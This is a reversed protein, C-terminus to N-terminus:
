TIALPLIEKSKFALYYEMIHVSWMKNIWEDMSPCRHQKGIKGITFSPALFMPMYIDRQSGPKLEKPFFVWIQRVELNWLRRFMIGHYFRRQHKKFFDRQVSCSGLDPRHRICRQTQLLSGASTLVSCQMGSLNSWSFVWSIFTLPSRPVSSANLSVHHKRRSCGLIM